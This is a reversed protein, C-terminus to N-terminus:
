NTKPVYVAGSESPMYRNGTKQEKADVLQQFVDEVGMNWVQAIQKLWEVVVGPHTPVNAVADDVLRDFRKKAATHGITEPM